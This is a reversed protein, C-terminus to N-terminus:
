NALINKGIRLGYQTHNQEDLGMEVNLMWRKPSLFSIGIMPRYASKSVNIGVYPSIAWSKKSIYVNNTIIKQSSTEYLKISDLRPKYGSLWIDYLSNEHYHFQEVPLRETSDDAHVYFTDVTEKYVPVPEKIFVTDIRVISITDTSYLIREEGNKRCLDSLTYVVALGGLAYLIRKM